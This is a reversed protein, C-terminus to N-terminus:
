EGFLTNTSSFTGPTAGFTIGWSGSSRMLLDTPNMAVLSLNAIGHFGGANIVLTEPEEPHAVADRDNVTWEYSLAQPYKTRAFYPVATVKLEKEKTNVEGVFARHYLVGFLPHNEYLRLQPERTTIVFSSEAYHARDASEATVRITESGFVPGSFTARSKGRGSITSLMTNGRYWTYIIDKEAMTRAGSTFVVSAYADIKASPGAVKKGKFFPPVYSDASWLIHMESPAIRAEAFGSQGSESTVEVSITTASGANGAQVSTKTLGEGTAIVKEGAKWTISSRNIDLAYSSISLEVTEGPAPYEPSMTLTLPVTDFTAIQAGLTSPALLVGTLFAGILKQAIM